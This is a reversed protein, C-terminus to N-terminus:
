HGSTCRDITKMTTVQSQPQKEEQKKIVTEVITEEPDSYMWLVSEGDLFLIGMKEFKEAWWICADKVISDAHADVLFGVMQVSQLRPYDEPNLALLHCKTPSSKNPYLLDATMGRVGIRLLNSHPYTPSNQIACSYVFSELNPCVDNALFIDPPIFQAERRLPANEVELDNESPPPLDVFLLSKGHVKLFAFLHENHGPEDGTTRLTLNRLKPLNLSTAVNLSRPKNSVILDQVNPLTLSPSDPFTSTGTFHRLDLVRLSHFKGLFEPSAMGAWCLGLLSQGYLASVGQLFEVPLEHTWKGSLYQLNPCCRFIRFVTQLFGIDGCGRMYTYVEIYRTWQGHGQLGTASSRSISPQPARSQELVRLIADARAPSRIVIHRYLIRVALRRWSKCVVALALKTRMALAPTNAALAITTMRRPTFPNLPKITECEHVYTAFQFIELWIELPLDPLARGVLHPQLPKPVTFPSLYSLVLSYIQIYPSYWQFSFLVSRWRELISQM